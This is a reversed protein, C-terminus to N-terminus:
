NLKVNNYTATDLIKQMDHSASIFLSLKNVTTDTIVKDGKIDSVVSEALDSAADVYKKIIALPKNM